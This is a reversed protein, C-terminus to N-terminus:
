GGTDLALRGFALDDVPRLRLDEEVIVIRQRPDAIGIQDFLGPPKEDGLRLLRDAADMLDVRRQQFAQEVLTVITTHAYLPQDQIEGAGPGTGRSTGMGTRGGNWCVSSELSTGPPKLMSRHSVNDESAGCWIKRSVRVSLPWPIQRVVVSAPM